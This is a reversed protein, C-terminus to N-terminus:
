MEVIIPLKIDLYNEIANIILIYYEEVKVVIQNYYDIITTKYREAIYTGFAFFLVIVAICIIILFFQSQRFRLIKKLGNM